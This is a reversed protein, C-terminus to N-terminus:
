TQCNNCCAAGTKFYWISKVTWFMLDVSIPTCQIIIHYMLQINESFDYIDHFGWQKTTIYMVFQLIRDNIAVVGGGGGGGVGM